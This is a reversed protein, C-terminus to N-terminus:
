KYFQEIIDNYKEVVVNRKIKFTPGLEGTPISFDHPLIAFKQVKQANSIANKNARDIGEQIAKLVIADPGAELIESLKTYNLELSNLWNITEKTLTDKPAGNEPEVDTKLTVLMTLFKRKDGVLFANSIAPLENKVLQEIHVPPINEGGATIILEKLRGTIHVCGDADIFAIDGTHMWGDEELTENTKEEDSLYGQFIHRGKVMLEGQGSEDPNLIKSQAGLLTSGISGMARVRPFINIIHAGSTESMGYAESFPMDLSMFYKKVEVSIPAAASIISKCRDFGLAKRVNSFILTKALKYQFSTSNKGEV